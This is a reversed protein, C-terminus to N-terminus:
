GRDNKHGLKKLKENAIKAEVYTSEADALIQSRTRGQMAQRRVIEDEGLQLLKAALSGIEPNGTLGGLIPLVRELGDLIEFLNM